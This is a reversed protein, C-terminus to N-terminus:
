VNREFIPQVGQALERIKGQETETLPVFKEAIEVALWFLSEEGPPIAATVDLSLTFRLALEAEDRDTVPQYWCKKYKKVSNGSDLRTRALGKLALCAAGKSRAKKMVEPGFHGEHWTVYNFPFLVSDFDYLDLAKLAAEASHASFGIHRVLGKEKAKVFTEMAGGPGFVKEVDDMKGLAHLQYLDFRDTQLTKLSQHLEKESGQRDRQTTKCALFVGDRYPKLAPGLRAEANGYTPAVDFYNVGRDIAKAVVKKAHSPETDKVVIGGFGITSLSIGTQGYNRQDLVAKKGATDSASVRNRECAM